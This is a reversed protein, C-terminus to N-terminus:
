PVKPQTCKVNSANGKTPRHRLHKTKGKYTTAHKLPLPILDLPTLPNFRYAVEFPSFSTTTHPVSNYVFEIFSSFYEWANPNEHWFTKLMTDFTKNAVEIQEDTQPHCTTSFLLKAGLKAWLTEM